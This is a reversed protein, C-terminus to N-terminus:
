KGTYIKGNNMIIKYGDNNTYVNVTEGDGMFIRLDANETGSVFSSRNQNM